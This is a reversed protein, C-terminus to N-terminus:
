EEGEEEPPATIAGSLLDEIEKILDNYDGLFATLAAAEASLVDPEDRRNRIGNEIQGFAEEFHSDYAQYQSWQAQSAKIENLPAHLDNVIMDNFDALTLPTYIEMDFRDWVALGALFAERKAIYREESNVVTEEGVNADNYLVVLDITEHGLDNALEGIHVALDDAIERLRITAYNGLESPPEVEPALESPTRESIQVQFEDPVDERVSVDPGTEEEVGPAQEPGAPQVVEPPTEVPEPEEPTIREGEVREALDNILSEIEAEKESIDVNTPPRFLGSHDSEEREPVAPVQTDPSAPESAPGTEAAPTVVGSSEVGPTPTEFPHHSEILDSWFGRGTERRAAEDHAARIIEGVRALVARKYEDEFYNNYQVGYYTARQSYYTLGILLDWLFLYPDDETLAQDPVFGYDALHGLIWVAPVNPDRRSARGMTDDRFTIYDDRYEPHPLWVDEYFSFLMDRAQEWEYWPNLVDPVLLDERMTNIFPFTATIPDPILNITNIADQYDGREAFMGSTVLLRVTESEEIWTLGDPRYGLTNFFDDIFQREYVETRDIPRFDRLAQSFAPGSIILILVPVLLVLAGRRISELGQSFAINLMPLVAKDM